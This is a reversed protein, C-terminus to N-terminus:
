KKQSYYLENLLEHLIEKVNEEKFEPIDDTFLKRERRNKNLIIRSTKISALLSPMHLLSM